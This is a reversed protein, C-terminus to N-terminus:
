RQRIMRRALLAEALVLDAPTTIKLNDESGEVLLPALGLREVAMAEDTVVIGDRAALTLARLLGARRFVQPTQARWLTDRSLTAEVRGAADARKLTDRLPAALLAGVPDAKIAAFLRTLDLAQVCPRAADHVLVWDEASVSDPLALLGARVSDAREGGGLCTLVPKGLRERWGPWYHDDHALVVMAGDISPHALLAELTHEIMPRGLLDSYQKPCGGGFRQGRGAAPIVVWSM